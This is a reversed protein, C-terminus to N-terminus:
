GLASPEFPTFDPPGKYSMKIHRSAWGHIRVEDM